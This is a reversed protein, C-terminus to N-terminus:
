RSPCLTEARPSTNGDEDVTAPDHLSALLRPAEQHVIRRVEREDVAGDPIGANALAAMIKDALSHLAATTFLLPYESM